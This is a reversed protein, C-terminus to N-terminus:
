AARVGKEALAERACDAFFLFMTAFFNQAAEALRPQLLIHDGGEGIRGILGDRAADRVLKLVHTRSVAFRRALASISIPVPRSPPMTDDAEGCTILSAVILMGAAREGFLGLRPAHTVFRFGAAFREHMARVLPARLAPDDTATLMAAGDPFLPAMAGFHLRWRQTLLAVLRETVVLRRQRRDTVTPDPALFGGFRMLSLMATARGASCLGFEACYAKVRSPTLGSTPDAPDRCLDLYLALYGFLLRARDDMLWNLLLSGQYLVVIGSASAHMAAGFRPHARLAVIAEPTAPNAPSSGELITM